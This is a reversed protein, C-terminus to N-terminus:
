GIDFPESRAVIEAHTYPELAAVAEKLYDALMPVLGVFPLHEFIMSGRDLCYRKGDLDVWAGGWLSYPISPDFTSFPKGAEKDDEMWLDIKRCIDTVKVASRHPYRGIAGTNDSYGSQRLFAQFIPNIEKLHEGLREFAEPSDLPM